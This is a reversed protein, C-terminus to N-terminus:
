KPFYDESIVSILDFYDSGNELSNCNQTEPEMNQIHFTGM